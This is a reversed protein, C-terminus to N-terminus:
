LYKLLNKELALWFEFICLKVVSPLNVSERLASLFLTFTGFVFPVSYGVKETITGVIPNAVLQVFAKSAFLGGM